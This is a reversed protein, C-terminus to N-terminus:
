KEEQQHERQPASRVNEIGFLGALNAQYTLLERYEDKSRYYEPYAAKKMALLEAYEARLAKLSPLQKKHSGATKGSTDSPLLEDFARKSAKCLKIADEHEEYYAKSYGSARYGAYIDKTKLYNTIHKQLVAIENLRKEASTIQASLADKRQKVAEVSEAFADFDDASTFGHQQYYLLARAQQKTIQNQISLDYYHGRGQNQKAELSSVLQAKQEALPSRRKRPNHIRRGSLVERIADERYEEPLSRMRINRKQRPHRFTINKGRTVTYGAQEMLSYFGELDHPKKALAADMDLCLRDRNSLKEIDGQWRNYSIGHPKPNEIVSLRHQVCILDSLKRVAMTSGWFNRFKRTCDLSTSNWYIHNHIHQKDTHTCVIFAHNGKLFREAFEYGIRNAEEPTIEGPRFSQRLHYAIVNDEGRVRGTNRIYQQKSFLFERDAVRSDCQWSTILNGNDTKGPNEVYDIIAAIATGVTRGKGIHLPMLRTTAM